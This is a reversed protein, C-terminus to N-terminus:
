NHLNITIVSDILVAPTHQIIHLDCTSTYTCTRTCVITRTCTGISTSQVFIHIFIPEDSYHSFAFATTGTTSSSTPLVFFQGTPV